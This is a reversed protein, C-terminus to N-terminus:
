WFDFLGPATVVPGTSGGVSTADVAVLALGLGLAFGLAFGLGLAFGCFETLRGSVVCWGVM